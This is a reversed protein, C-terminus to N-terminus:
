PGPLTSEFFLKRERLFGTPMFKEGSIVSIPTLANWPQVPNVSASMGAPTVVISLYAKAPHVLRVSIIMGSLTVSMPSFANWSQLPRVLILIGPLPAFILSM